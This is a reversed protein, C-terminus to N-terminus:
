EINYDGKHRDKLEGKKSKNWNEVRSYYGVIRTIHHVNKGQNVQSKLVPWDNKEIAELSFHAVTDFVESGVYYGKVGDLEEEKWAFGSEVSKNIFEEIKM